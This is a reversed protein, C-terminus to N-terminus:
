RSQKEYSTKKQANNSRRKKWGHVSSWNISPETIHKVWDKLGYTLFKSSMSFSENKILIWQAVSLCGRQTAPFLLHKGRVRNSLGSRSKMWIRTDKQPKLTMCLGMWVNEESGQIWGAQYGQDDAERPNLNQYGPVSTSLCLPTHFDVIETLSLTTFCKRVKLLFM